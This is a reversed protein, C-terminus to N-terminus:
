LFVFDQYQINFTQATCFAFVYAINLIFMCHIYNKKFENLCRKRYRGRFCYSVDILASQSFFLFIAYIYKINGDFNLFSCM